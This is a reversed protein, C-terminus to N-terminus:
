LDKTEVIVAFTWVNTTKKGPFGESFVCFKSKNLTQTGGERIHRMNKRINSLSLTRDHQRIHTWIMCIHEMTSILDLANYTYWDLYSSSNAPTLNNQGVTALDILSLMHPTHM